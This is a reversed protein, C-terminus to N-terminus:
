EGHPPVSASEGKTVPEEQADDKKNQEQPLESQQEEPSRRTDEGFDGCTGFFVTVVIGAVGLFLHILNQVSMNALGSWIAGVLYALLFSSWIAGISSFFLFPFRGMTEIATQSGTVAYEALVALM